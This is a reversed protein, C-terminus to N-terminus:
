LKKTFFTDIYLDCIRCMIKRKKKKKRKKTKSMQKPFFKHM